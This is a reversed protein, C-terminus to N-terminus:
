DRMLVWLILLFFLFFSFMWFSFLYQEQTAQNKKWVAQMRHREEDTINEEM